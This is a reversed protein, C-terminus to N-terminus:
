QNKRDMIDLRDMIRQLSKSLVVVKGDSTSAEEKFVVKNENRMQAKRDLLNAEVSVVNIEM